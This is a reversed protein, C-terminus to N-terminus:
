IAAGESLQALRHPFLLWSFLRMGLSPRSLRFAAALPLKCFKPFGFLTRSAIPPSYVNHLVYQSYPESWCFRSYKQGHHCSRSATLLRRVDFGLRGRWNM